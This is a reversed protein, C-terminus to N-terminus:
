FVYNFHLLNVQRNKNSLPTIAHEFQEAFERDRMNYFINKAAQPLEDSIMETLNGKNQCFTYIEFLIMTSYQLKPEDFINSKILEYALAATTDINADTPEVDSILRYVTFLKYTTIITFIPTHMYSESKARVLKPVMKKFEEFSCEGDLYRIIYYDAYIDDIFLIFINM